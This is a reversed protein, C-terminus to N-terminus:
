FKQDKIKIVTNDAFVKLYPIDIGLTINETAINFDLIKDIVSKYIGIKFSSYPSKALYIDLYLRTNGMTLDTDLFNRKVWYIPNNKDTTTDLEYNPDNESEIPEINGDLLISSVRNFDGVLYFWSAYHLKYLTEVDNNANCNQTILEYHISSGKTNIPSNPPLIDNNHEFRVCIPILNKFCPNTVAILQDYAKKLYGNNSTIKAEKGASGKSEFLGIESLSRNLILFDPSKGNTQINLTTSTINKALDFDIIYPFDLRRGVFLSNIGQALEGIRTTRSFDRLRFIRSESVKFYDNADKRVINFHSFLSSMLDFYLEKNNLHYSCLTRATMYGIDLIDLSFDDEEKSKDKDYFDPSKHNFVQFKYKTLSNINRFRIRGHFMMELNMM